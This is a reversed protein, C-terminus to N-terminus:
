SCFASNFSFVTKGGFFWLLEVSLVRCNCKSCREPIGPAGSFLLCLMFSLSSGPVITLVNGFPLSSLQEAPPRASVRCSRHADPQRVHLLSYPQAHRPVPM